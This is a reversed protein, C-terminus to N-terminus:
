VVQIANVGGITAADPEVQAQFGLYLVDLDLDLGQDELDLDLDALGLLDLLDLLDLLEVLDKLDVLDVLYELYELYELDRTQCYDVVTTCGGGIARRDSNHYREVFLEMRCRISAQPHWRVALKGSAM